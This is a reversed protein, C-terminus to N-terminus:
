GAWSGAILYSLVIALGTAALAILLYALMQLGSEAALAEQAEAEGISGLHIVLRSDPLQETDVRHLTALPVSRLIQKASVTGESPQVPQGARVRRVARLHQGASRNIQETIRQMAAEAQQSPNTSMGVGKQEQFLVGALPSNKKASFFRLL